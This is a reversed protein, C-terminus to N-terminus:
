VFIPWNESILKVGHKSKNSVLSVENIQANLFVLADKEFIKKNIPLINNSLVLESTSNSILGNNLANIIPNANLNFELEYDEFAESSELPCNFAPHAGVSFYLDKTDTNRITYTAVVNNDTLQYTVLFKFQFPYHLLTKESHALQFVIKTETQEVCEFENDRAFGHQSLQYTKNKFVFENNHLKGVIPFLNPAHRAWVSENAQWIYEINTQKSKVSCLEAGFSKVTIKIFTNELTNM